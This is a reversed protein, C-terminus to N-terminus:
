KNWDPKRKELFAKMGERAEETSFLISFAETEYSNATTLNADIGRNIVTKALRVATPGVEIIKKALAIAEDMLSEPAVVKNVLGINLAQQASIIDGTFILEKAKGIGVLRALRQTGAHGPILGLKVEPQGFKAKESAVRIDCAMCLECGSGLAYGNVAAIVPKEMNEIFSLVRQGIQSYERAQLSDMQVLKSIDSGSVFSKGEGTIIVVLVEKNQNFEQMASEIELITEINVANLKEPRNVKLIGIQEKKEVIINKYPM